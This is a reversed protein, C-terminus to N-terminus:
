SKLIFFGTDSVPDKGTCSAAATMKRKLQVSLIPGLNGSFSIGEKCVFLM